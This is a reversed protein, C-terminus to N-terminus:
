VMWNTQLTPVFDAKWKKEVDAMGKGELLTMVTFFASLVMPAFAFQDLGVRTATTGIASKFKIRELTRFWVTVAPAFAGAGWGVIRATRQYDHKDVKEIAQQALVDGTAFLVGSTLINGLMPRRALLSTYASFLGSM